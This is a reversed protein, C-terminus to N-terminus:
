KLVDIAGGLRRCVDVFDVPPPDDFRLSMMRTTDVTRDVLWAPLTFEMRRCHLLMRDRDLGFRRQMHRNWAFDGHTRDGLIPAGHLACHVRLQHTRGTVPELELLLISDRLEGSDSEGSGHQLISAVRGRTEAPKSRVAELWRFSSPISHASHADHAGGGHGHKGLGTGSWVRNRVIASYTKRMAKDRFQRKIADSVDIRTTVLMLGTTAADLRNVLHIHTSSAPTYDEQVRQQVVADSREAVDPLVYAERASDYPLQLLTRASSSPGANPHSLTAASKSLAYLGLAPHSGVVRVGRGLHRALLHQAVAAM